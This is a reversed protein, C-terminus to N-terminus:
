LALKWAMQTNVVPTRSLIIRKGLKTIGLNLTNTIMQKATQQLIGTIFKRGPNVDASRLERYTKELQMRENIKKLDANSMAYVKKTRLERKTNEDDSRESALRTAREKLKHRGWKMGPIGFHQLFRDSQQKGVLILQDM